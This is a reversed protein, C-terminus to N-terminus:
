ESMNVQLSKRLTIIVLEPSDYFRPVKITNGIGRSVVATTKEDIMYVGSDYHPFFKGEPSFIGGILPLRFQGGHIHGSLILEYGKNKFCDLMNARHFLLVDYGDTSEAKQMFEWVSFCAEEENMIEPDSIGIIHIVEGDKKIESSANELNIVGADTMMYQINEFNDNWLDHNGSVSYVPCIGSLQNILEITWDLTQQSMNHYFTDGTLVIIDPNIRQAFPLVDQNTSNQLDSIQLIKYGDFASPLATSYLDYETIGLPCILGLIVYVTLCILFILLVFRRKSLKMGSYDGEM